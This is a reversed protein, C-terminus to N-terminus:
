SAKNRTITVLWGIDGVVTDTIQKILLGDGPVLTLDCARGLPVYSGAVQGTTNSAVEDTGIVIAWFTSGETAGGTANKRADFNGDVVAMTSAAPVPTIATGGTGIASIRILDYRCAVGTVAALSLNIPTLDRISYIFDSTSGNFLTLSRTNQAQTVGEAWIYFTDTNGVAANFAKDINLGKPM